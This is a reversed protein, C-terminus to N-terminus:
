GTRCIKRLTEKDLIEFHNGEVSILGADKFEKLIRIASEKTMATMDALDQRSIVVDFHDSEHVFDSLYFIADAIRGPMQKQTLNIFKEFNKIGQTNIKKMMALAFKNNSKVVDQFTEADILCVQTDTLTTVTFHHKFDTHMGPGGVMEGRKVIKIILNRNNLGEIYIKAMGHTFCAIHTLASGQKFITEGKKYRVEYRNQNLTELENPNLINFLPQKFLCDKCMLNRFREVM